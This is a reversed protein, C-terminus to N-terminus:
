AVQVDYGRLWMGVGAGGAYLQLTHSAWVCDKCLYLLCVRPLGGSQKQITWM